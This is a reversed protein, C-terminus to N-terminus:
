VRKKWEAHQAQVHFATCKEECHAHMRFTCICISLASHFPCTYTRRRTYTHHLNSKDVDHAHTHTSVFAGRGCRQAVEPRHAARCHRHSCADAENLLATAPASAQCRRTPVPALHACTCSHTHTRQLCDCTCTYLLVRANEHAHAYAANRAFESFHLAPAIGCQYIDHVIAGAAGQRSAGALSSSLKATSPVQHSRRRSAHMWM